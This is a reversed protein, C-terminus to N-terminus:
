SCEVSTLLSSLVVEPFAEARVYGRAQEGSLDLSPCVEPNTYYVAGLRELLECREEM